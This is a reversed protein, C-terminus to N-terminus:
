RSTANAPRTRGDPVGLYDLFTPGLGLWVIPNQSPRCSKVRAWVVVATAVAMYSLGNEGRGPGAAHREPPTSKMPV